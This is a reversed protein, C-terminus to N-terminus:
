SQCKAQGRSVCSQQWELSAETKKPGYGVVSVVSLNKKVLARLGTGIGASPEQSPGRQDQAQRACNASLRHACRVALAAGFDILIPAGPQL